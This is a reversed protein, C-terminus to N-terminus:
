KKRAANGPPELEGLFGTLIEIHREEDLIIRRFLNDISDNDIRGIMMKYHAIADKEGKIDAKLIPVLDCHYDPFSGSWYQNSVCSVFFPNMGLDRILRGLLDLHIMEVQSIGLYAAHIKPYKELFFRHATYQAIATLESGRGAYGDSVLIAYRRDPKTIEVKPYPLNVRYSLPEPRNSNNEM